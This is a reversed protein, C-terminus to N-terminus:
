HILQLKLPIRENYSYFDPLSAIVGISIHYNIFVALYKSPIKYWPNKNGRKRRLINIRLEGTCELFFFIFVALYWMVWGNCFKIIKCQQKNRKPLGMKGFNYYNKLQCETKNVGTYIPWLPVMFPCPWLQHTFNRLFSRLWVLPGRTCSMRDLLIIMEFIVRRSEGKQVRWVYSQLFTVIESVVM